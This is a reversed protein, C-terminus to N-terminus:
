PYKVYYTFDLCASNGAEDTGCGTIVLSCYGSICHGSTGKWVDNDTSTTCYRTENCFTYVYKFDCGEPCAFVKNEYSSAAGYKRSYFTTYVSCDGSGLNYDIDRVYSGHKWWANSKICYIEPPTKDINIVKPDSAESCGKDNCARVHINDHKEESYIFSSSYNTNISYSSISSWDDDQSFMYQYKTIPTDTSAPTISIYINQNTVTGFYDAGNANNFKTNIIPPDLQKEKVTLKTSAVTTKGNGGTATCKLTYEGVTLSDTKEPTCSLTGGSTSYKVTFYSSTAKSVKEYIENTSSKATLTPSYTDIKVTKGDSAASCGVDNCARVYIISDIDKSYTFHGSNNNSVALESLAVWSGTGIKYEYRTVYDESNSQTIGFYIGQYTWTGTYIAGKSTGIRTVVTPKGPASHPKVQLVKTASAKKGNTGTATCTLEHTGIALKGTTEPNCKTTGGLISYKVTFYSEVIDNTKVYISEPEKNATIIPAEDDITSIVELKYAENGAKDKVCVKFKGNSKVSVNKSSIYNSCSENENVIAYGNVGSGIGDSAIIEVDKYTTWNKDYKVENIIPPEKDIRVKKIATGTIDNGNKDKSKIDCKYTSDLLTGDVVVTAENSTFGTNSTWNYFNDNGSLLKGQYMVGLTVSTNFWDDDSFEECSNDNFKCIKYDSTKEYLKCKGKDDKGLDETLTSVYEGNEFVSKIIYCNLSKNNRPDYIDSEDDPKVYGENILDAVNITTISTANAYEAAKTELYLKVNNFDKELVNKRINIFVSVSATILISLIVLVAILEILTFGKKNM